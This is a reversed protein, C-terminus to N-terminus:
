ALEFIVSRLGVTEDFHGSLDALFALKDGITYEAGLQVFEEGTLKRLFTIRAAIDADCV